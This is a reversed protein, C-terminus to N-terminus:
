SLQNNFLPRLVTPFTFKTHSSFTIIQSSFHIKIFATRSCGTLEAAPNKVKQYVLQMTKSYMKGKIYNLAIYFQLITPFHFPVPAIPLEVTEDFLAELWFQFSLITYIM